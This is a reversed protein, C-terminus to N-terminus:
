RTYRKEVSLDDIWFNMVTEHGTATVLGRKENVSEGEGDYIFGTNVVKDGKMLLYMPYHSKTEFRIIKNEGEQLLTKVNKIEGIQQSWHKVAKEKSKFGTKYGCREKITDWHYNVLEGLNAGDKVEKTEKM